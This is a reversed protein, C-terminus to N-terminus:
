AAIRAGAKEMEELVRPRAAPDVPRTAGAIVHTDFGKRRADLVTQLVCVDEALGGVWLRRIGHRALYTDLGTGDFASYADRDFATGKSVRVASDPLALDDHFEAGETDQVCHEPWPGGQSAFSVHERPHWDRSAIIPVGAARAAEIWENLVPVVEDGGPVALAGGACFDKQVDVILLADGSQLKETMAPKSHDPPIESM